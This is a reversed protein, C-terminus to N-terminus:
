RFFLEGSQKEESIAREPNSDRFVEGICFFVDLSTKKQMPLASRKLHWEAGIFKVTKYGLEIAREIGKRIAYYEAM